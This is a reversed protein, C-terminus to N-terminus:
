EYSRRGLNLLCELRNTADTQNLRKPLEPQKKRLFPIEYNGM